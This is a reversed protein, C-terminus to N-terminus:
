EVLPGQITSYQGVLGVLGPEYGYFRVTSEDDFAGSINGVQLRLGEYSAQFRAGNFTATSGSGDTEDDSQARLRAAFEIGNDATTRGDINLRFRQEIRTDDDANGEDYILGFRGYGSFVVEAVAAQGTMGAALAMLTLKKM